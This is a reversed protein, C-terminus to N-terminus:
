RLRGSVLNFLTTKGAGNPGIIAHREGRPVELSVGRIIPTAGFTKHVEHLWLAATVGQSESAPAYRRRELRGRGQALPPPWDSGRASSRSRSSGYPRHLRISASAEGGRRRGVAGLLQSALEIILIAGAAGAAIAPAVMVYASALRWAEGRRAAEQHLMLWGAIGGPSFLVVAMFLVGFYLQWVDTVDSLMTQLFTVIVAGVIPGFFYGTGGVYTMLLVIGSQQAGLEQANMLEFNIASLGGAVGALLPSCCASACSRPLYGHVRQTRPQRAGRQVHARVPHPHAPLDLSASSAGHQRSTTSRSRRALSTGSSRRSSPAIPPSGRRAASFVGCSSPARLPSSASALSIMAFSLGGRKTSVSGFLLGFALGALGGALPIAPVPIPLRAHIVANMTHIAIDGGLGLYVAHGFSLLGTEGLLMNYSLAFIIMVGM